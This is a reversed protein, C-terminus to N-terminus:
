KFVRGMANELRKAMLTWYGANQGYIYRMYDRSPFVRQWLWRVRASYSTLSQYTKSQMYRWDSLRTADLSEVASAQRLKNIHAEPLARNFTQAAAQLGNVVVGALGKAIALDTLREWDVSEFRQALVDLDYLWKLKDEVGISLNLARHVCAHICAHIPSLGRAAGGLSSICISEAYLEDFRFANAFLPSNSLQWHIDADVQVGMPTSRTCLLEYAVLDGSTEFHKWGATSLRAALQEALERSPLLVDVDGCSRLEPSAYAWNALASGKLLLCQCQMDGLYQLLSRLEAEQCMSILAMERAVVLFNRRIQGAKESLFAQACVTNAREFQWSVLAVVDQRKAEDLLAEATIESEDPLEIFDGRMWTALWRRVQASPEGKFDDPTKV